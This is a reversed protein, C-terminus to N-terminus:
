PARIALAALRHYMPLCRDLLPHDGSGTSAPTPPGFGTSRHVSAYWHPAWVGDEPKPGAPWTLMRDTFPIDVRACLEALVGAPDGLVEDSDVVVPHGGEAEIRDLIAMQAPLGTADIAADALNVTLSALVREPHRTLLINTLGDLFELDLGVLHHAMNKTFRISREGDTLLVKDIVRRPDPEVTALVQRRGPHELGTAELYYGYLPEDVVETDPRQRFSYMLATSLNRPGSWMALRRKM